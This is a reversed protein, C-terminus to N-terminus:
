APASALFEAVLRNVRDPFEWAPFGGADPITARTARPLLADLRDAADLFEPLDHEGNYLLVPLDVAALREDVPAVAAAAGEYLWPAGTFASVIAWHAEARCEEPRRHMVDFWASEDFWRRRAEPVGEARAVDRAQQLAAEVGPMARGPLVAGEFVMARFRGAHESALLLGLSTGTHTAWYDCTAVGANEMAAAVHAALTNHDFPGPIDGSLGHGPLDVLLIRYRDKFAAVQSSFVRHDQSMGHVLVLWPADDGADLVTKCNATM